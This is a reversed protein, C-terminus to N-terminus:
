EMREHRAPIRERDASGDSVPRSRVGMAAYSSALPIAVAHSAKAHAHRCHWPSSTTSHALLQRPSLVRLHIATYEQRSLEELYGARLDDREDTVFGRPM